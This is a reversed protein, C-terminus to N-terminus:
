VIHAIWNETTVVQTLVVDWDSNTEIHKCAVQFSFKVFDTWETEQSENAIVYQELQGIRDYIHKVYQIKTWNKEKLIEDETKGLFWYDQGELGDNIIKKLHTEYNEPRSFWKGEMMSQIPAMTFNHTTKRQRANHQQSLFLCAFTKEIKKCFM